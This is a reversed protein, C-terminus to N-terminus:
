FAPRSLPDGARGRGPSYQAARTSRGLDGRKQRRKRSFKTWFSCACCCLLMLSAGLTVWVWGYLGNDTSGLWDWLQAKTNDWLGPDELLTSDALDVQYAQEGAELSATSTQNRSVVSTNV